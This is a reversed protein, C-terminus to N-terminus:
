KVGREILRDIKANIERLSERTESTTRDREAKIYNIEVTHNSIATKVDSGWSFLAFMMGVTTLIHAINVTTDMRFRKKEIERRDSAQEEDLM